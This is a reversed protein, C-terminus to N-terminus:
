IAPVSTVERLAAAVRIVPQRADLPSTDLEADPLNAPTTAM